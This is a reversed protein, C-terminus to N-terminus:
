AYYKECSVVAVGRRQGGAGEPRKVGKREREQAALLAILEREKRRKYFYLEPSVSSLVEVLTLSKQKKM